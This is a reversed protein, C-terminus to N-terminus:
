FDQNKFSICGLDTRILHQSLYDIINKDENNALYYIEKTFIKDYGKSIIISLDNKSLGKKKYLPLKTLIDNIIFSNDFSYHNYIIEIYEKKTRNFTNQISYKILNSPKNYGKEIIYALNEYNFFNENCIFYLDKNKVSYNIDAGNKILFDAIDFKKKDIAVLLPTKYLEIIESDRNKEIGYDNYYYNSDKKKVIM